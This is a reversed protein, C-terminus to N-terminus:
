TEARRSRLFRAAEAMAPIFFIGISPQITGVEEAPHRSRLLGVLLISFCCVWLPISAWKSRVLAVLFCPLFFLAPIYTSALHAQPHGHPGFALAVVTMGSVYVAGVGSFILLPLALDARSMSRRGKKGPASVVGKEDDVKMAVGM